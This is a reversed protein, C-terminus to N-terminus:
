PLKFLEKVKAQWTERVRRDSPPIFCYIPELNAEQGHERKIPPSELTPDWWLVKIPQGAIGRKAEIRLMLEAHSEMAGTLWAIREYVKWVLFTFLAIFATLLIMIFTAM